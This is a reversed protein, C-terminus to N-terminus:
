PKAILHVRIADIADAKTVDLSQVLVSSYFAEAAPLIGNALAMPVFKEAAALLIKMESDAWKTAFAEMVAAATTAIEASTQDGIGIKKLGAEIYDGVNTFFKKFNLAM